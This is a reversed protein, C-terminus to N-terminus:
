GSTGGQDWGGSRRRSSKLRRLSYTRRDTFGCSTCLRHQLGTGTSVGTAPEIVENSRTLTQAGCQPCTKRKRHTYFFRFIVLGAIGAFAAFGVLNDFTGSGPDFGDDLGIPQGSLFPVILRDRISFLGAEIAGGVQGKRLDPLVASSLVRAARGDYVAAYDAGLAIRAERPGTAVLMLIADNREPDGLRWATLLAKAYDDLRTGAGGYGAIDSMTVVRVEVGTTTLTEEILRQIRAEATADLVGAYDSVTDTLPEPFAPAAVQAVGPPTGAVIFALSLAFGLARLVM